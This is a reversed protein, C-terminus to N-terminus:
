GVKDWDLGLGAVLLGVGATVIAAPISWMAIGGIILLAGSLAALFARRM